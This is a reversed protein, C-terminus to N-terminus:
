KTMTLVVLQSTPATTGASPEVKTVTWNEPLVVVSKGSKADAALKINTFGLSKLTSEAIAGNQGRLDPVTAASVGASPGTNSVSGSGGGGVPLAPATVTVTAPASTDPSGCGALIAAAAVVLLLITRTRVHVGPRDNTGSTVTSEDSLNRTNCAIIARSM